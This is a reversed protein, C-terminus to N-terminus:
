HPVTKSARAETQRLHLLLLCLLLYLHKSLNGVGRSDVDVLYVVTHGSQGTLARLLDIRPLARLGDGLSGGTQNM